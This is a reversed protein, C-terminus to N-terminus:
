LSTVLHLSDGLDLDALDELILLAEMLEESHLHEEVEGGDAVAIIIPQPLNPLAGPLYPLIELESRRYSMHM